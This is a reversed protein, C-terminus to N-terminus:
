ESKPEPPEVVMGSTTLLLCAISVASEVAAILVEVPDCVGVDMFKGYKGTVVNTAFGKQQDYEDPIGVNECLQVYPDLLSENLVDSQTNIHILGQGGGAVVGGKFASHVAHVADEVKFTLARAEQDTPAGVKIVAIKNNLKALRKRLAEKNKETKANNIADLLQDTAKKMDQKNGKPAIITTQEANCIIKEARGFSEITLNEDIKNGKTMSFFTGGTQMALDELFVTRDTGSMPAQVAVSLVGGRTNTQQNLMNPHNVALTPMAGSNEVHEAVIVVSGKAKIVANLIHVIEDAETLRYDTIFIYPKELVAEMREPNTVMWPAMFGNSINIGETMEVYTEMTGSKEVLLEGEKGLKFWTDAILKSIVEDDFSIRAVKELEQLTKVPVAMNRLQEVVEVLGAKLEQEIKRYDRRNLQIKAVEEIIARLLILSGTTGDGVRDNTKIAVNRAHSWVAQENPDPLDLNRAIHVGDDFIGRAMNTYLLVKNSSPGFTPAILDVAKNIASRVIDFSDKTVINYKM